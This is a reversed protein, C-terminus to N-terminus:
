LKGGEPNTAENTPQTEPKGESSEVLELNVRKNEKIARIRLLDRIAHIINGSRGIVIGMDEPAVQLRLNIVEGELTEEEVQVQDPQSVIKEVIYTLLDKM